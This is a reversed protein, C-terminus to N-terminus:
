VQFDVAFAQARGMGRQLDSRRLVLDVAKGILDPHPVFMARTEAQLVDDGQTFRPKFELIRQSIQAVFDRLQGVERIRLRQNLDMLIQGPFALQLVLFARALHRTQQVGARLGQLLCLSQHLVQLLQLCQSHLEFACLV